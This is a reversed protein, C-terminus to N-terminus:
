RRESAYESKNDEAKAPKAGASDLSPFSEPATLLHTHECGCCTVGAIARRVADTFQAPIELQDGARDYFIPFVRGRFDKDKGWLELELTGQRGQFLISNTLSPRQGNDGPELKHATVLLDYTHMVRVVHIRVLSTALARAHLGNVGITEVRQFWGLPAGTDMAFGCYCGLEVVAGGSEHARILYRRTSRQQVVALRPVCYIGSKQLRKLTLHPLRLGLLALRQKPSMVSKNPQEAM